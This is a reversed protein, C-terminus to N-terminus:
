SQHKVATTIPWMMQDREAKTAEDILRDQRIIFIIEMELHRVHTLYEATGTAYTIKLDRMM